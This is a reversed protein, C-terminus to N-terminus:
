GRDAVSGPKSASEAARDSTIVRAHHAALRALPVAVEGDTPRTSSPAPPVGAADATILVHHRTGYWATGDGNNVYAAAGPVERDPQTCLGTRTAPPLPVDGQM